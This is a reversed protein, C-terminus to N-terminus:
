FPVDEFSKGGRVPDGASKPDEAEAPTDGVKQAPPALKLTYDPNVPSAEATGDDKIDVILFDEEELVLEPSPETKCDVHVSAGEVRPDRAARQRSLRETTRKIIGIGNLFSFM